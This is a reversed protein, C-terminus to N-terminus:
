AFRVNGEEELVVLSTASMVLSKVRQGQSERRAEAVGGGGEVMAAMAVKMTEM